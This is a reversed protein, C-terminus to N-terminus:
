LFEIISDVKSVIESSLQPEQLIVPIARLVDDLPFFLIKTVFATVLVKQTPFSDTM